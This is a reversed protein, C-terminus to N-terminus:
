RSAQDHVTAAFDLAAQIFGTFLPHGDRLRYHGDLPFHGRAGHVLGLLAPTGNAVILLIVLQSVMGSSM